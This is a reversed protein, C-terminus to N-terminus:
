HANSMMMYQYGATQCVGDKDFSLMRGDYQWRFRDLLDLLDQLLEYM